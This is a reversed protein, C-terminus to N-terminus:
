FIRCRILNSLQRQNSKLSFADSNKFIPFSILFGSLVFFIPVGMWGGRVLSFLAKKLPGGDPDFYLCHFFVVGLVAFARISDLYGFFYGSSPKGSM